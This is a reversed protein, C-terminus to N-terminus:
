AAVCLWDGPKHQSLPQGYMMWGRLRFNGFIDSIKLTKNLPRNRCLIVRKESGPKQKQCNQFRSGWVRSRDQGWGHPVALGECHPTHQLKLMENDWCERNRPRINQLTTRNQSNASVMSKIRALDMPWHHIRQFWTLHLQPCCMASQLRDVHDLLANISDKSTGMIKIHRVNTKLLDVCHKRSFHAFITRAQWQQDPYDSTKALSQMQTYNFWRSLKMHTILGNYIHAMTFAFAHLDVCHIYPIKYSECSRNIAARPCRCRAWVSWGDRRCLVDTNTHQNACFKLIILKRLFIKLTARALYQLSGFRTLIYSLHENM